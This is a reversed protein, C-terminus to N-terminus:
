ASRGSRRRAAHIALEGLLATRRCSDWSYVAPLAALATVDAETYQKSLICGGCARSTRLHGGSATRRSIYVWVGIADSYRQPYYCRVAICGDVDVGDGEREGDTFIRQRRRRADDDLTSCFCRYLRHASVSMVVAAGTHVGDDHDEHASWFSRARLHCGFSYSGGRSATDPRVIAGRRFRAAVTFPTTTTSSVPGPQHQHQRLAHPTSHSTIPTFSPIGRTVLLSSPNKSWLRKLRTQAAPAVCDYRSPSSMLVSLSPVAFPMRRRTPRPPFWLAISVRPDASQNALPLRIQSKPLFPHLSSRSSPIRVCHTFIFSLSYFPLLSCTHMCPSIALSSTASGPTLTHHSYETAPPLISLPTPLPPLHYYQPISSTSSYTVSMTALEKEGCNDPNRWNRYPRVIGSARPRDDLPSPRLYSRQYLDAVVPAAAPTLLFHSLADDVRRRGRAALHHAHSSYDTKDSRLGGDAAVRRRELALRTNLNQPTDESDSEDDKPIPICIYMSRASPGCIERDQDVRTWACRRPTEAGRVTEAGDDQILQMAMRVALSRQTCIVQPARVNLNEPNAM